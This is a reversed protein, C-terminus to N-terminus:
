PTPSPHLKDIIEVTEQLLEFLESEWTPDKSLPQKFRAGFELQLVGLIGATWSAIAIFSEEKFWPGIHVVTSADDETVIADQLASIDGHAFDSLIPYAGKLQNLQQSDAIEKQMNTVKPGRAARLDPIKEPRLVCYYFRVYQEQLSRLLTFGAVYYGKLLRDIVSIATNFANTWVLLMYHDEGQMIYNQLIQSARGYHNLWRELLDVVELHRQRTLEEAKREDEALNFLLGM